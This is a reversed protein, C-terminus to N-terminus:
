AAATPPDIPPGAPPDVKPPKPGRSTLEVYAQFAEVVIRSVTWCLATVIFVLSSGTRHGSLSGIIGFLIAAGFGLRVYAGLRTPPKTPGPTPAM